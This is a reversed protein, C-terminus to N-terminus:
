SAAPKFRRAMVALASLSLMILYATNANDPVPVWQGMGSAPVAGTVDDLVVFEQYFSVKEYLYLQLLDGTVPDDAFAGGNLTRADAGGIWPTSGLAFTVGSVTLSGAFAPQDTFTSQTLTLSGSVPNGSVGSLTFDMASALSLGVVLLLLVLLTRPLYPFRRKTILHPM